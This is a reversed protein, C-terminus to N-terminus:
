DVVPPNLTCSLTGVARAANVLLGSEPVLTIRMNLHGDQPAGTKKVFRTQPQPEGSTKEGASCANLAEPLSQLLRSAIEQLQAASSPLAV